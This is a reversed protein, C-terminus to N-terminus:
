EYSKEITISQSASEKYTYEITVSLSKEFASTQLNTTDISCSMQKLGQSLKIHGENANDLAACKIPVNGSEFNLRVFVEDAYTKDDRCEGKTVFKPKYINGQGKNEIKFTFSIENKGTSRQSFSTIQVPASSSGFQLQQNEIACETERTREKPIQKLCLIAATKTQYKYCYNATITFEQSFTSSGVYNAEYSVSSQDGEVIVDGQETKGILGETIYQSPASISFSTYDFGQLTVLAENPKINYEGKNELQVDITFPDVGGGLVSLPPSDPIFSAIIGDTGGIWSFKTESSSRDGGCSAATIFLMSLLFTIYIIYKRM